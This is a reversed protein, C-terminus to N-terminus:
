LVEAVWKAKQVYVDGTMEILDAATQPNLFSVEKPKLVSIKAPTERRGQKWKTASVVVEDLSLEIQEMYIKFDRGKIEEYSLVITEYGILRFVIRELGEFERLNSQGRMNTITNVQPSQSFITVLELPQHSQKDRVQVTQSFANLSIFLLLFFIHIRNM